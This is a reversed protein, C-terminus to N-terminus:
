DIEAEVYVAKHDTIGNLDRTGYSKIKWSKPIFIHDISSCERYKEANTKEFVPVRTINRKELKNMFNIFTDDELCMNFDGMLVIEGLNIYKDIIKLIYDLQRIQLRPLYYDLHTNIIYIKKGNIDIKAITMIRRTICKKKLGRKLDEINKPIWPLAKTISKDVSYHTIIQNAQNFKKIIPFRTGIIGKGYQYGGNINYNVLNKFLKKSFDITMEQTGLIDYKEDIIHKALTSSNNNRDYRNDDNNQCNLTGIKINM